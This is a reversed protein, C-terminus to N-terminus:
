VKFGRSQRRGRAKEFKRGKSRVYPKAHCGPIGPAGFHRVVERANKKGRLLVTNKGTPRRRALEDFTLAEGGAKTIRARAVDSFRLACVKMAPVDLLRPDNLVTGVIVAIQEENKGKMQVSLQSVSIPPRNTNSMCLRKLVTKNFDSDTRRALFRYLKVLMRLYVDQSRPEWRNKNKLHKYKLDIGM